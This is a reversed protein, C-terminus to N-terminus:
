PILTWVEDPAPRITWEEGEVYDDIWYDTSAYPREIAIGTWTGTTTGQIEWPM